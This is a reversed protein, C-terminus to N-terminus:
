ITAPFVRRDDRALASRAGHDGVPARRATGAGRRHPRRPHGAVARRRRRDGRRGVPPVPAGHAPLARARGREGGRRAPARRDPSRLRAPTTSLASAIPGPRPRFASSRRGRPLSPNRVSPSARACSRPRRSASRCDAGLAGLAEQSAANASVADLLDARVGAPLSGGSWGTRAAFGALARALRVSERQASLLAGHDRELGPPPSLAELNVLAEERVAAVSSLSGARGRATLRHCIPGLAARYARPRTARQCAARRRPSTPRTAAAGSPLSPRWRPSPSGARPEHAERVDCPSQRMRQPDADM